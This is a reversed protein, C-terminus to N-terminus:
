VAAAERAVDPRTLAVAVVIGLGLAGLVAQYWFVQTAATALLLCVGILADLILHTRFSMMPRRGHAYNTLLSYTFNALGGTLPVAWALPEVGTLAGAIGAGVLQLDVLVDLYGHM